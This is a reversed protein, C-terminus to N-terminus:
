KITGPISTPKRDKYVDPDITRSFCNRGMGHKWNESEINPYWVSTEMMRNKDTNNQDTNFMACLEFSLNGTPTYEYANQTQPDLPVTFGTIDNKLIDLNEPLTDKTIWHEIIQYQLTQLDSIRDEDFRRARQEGPTGMIFFGAIIVALLVISTGWAMNKPVRTKTDADRRADWLYYGFVAGAVILIVLVKLVFRDTLEGGLFNYLLTILDIILTLASVFLTLYILWKRIKLDRKEPEKATEKSLMISLALFVPWVVILSAVSRRMIDYANTFSYYILDPFSTNIYQFLLATISIVGIYLTVFMLLYSFVDKPTSKTM